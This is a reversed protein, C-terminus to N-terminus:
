PSSSPWSPLFSARRAGRSLSQNPACESLKEVYVTANRPEQYGVNIWPGLLLLSKQLPIYKTLPYLQADASELIIEIGKLTHSATGTSLVHRSGKVFRRINLALDYELCCM